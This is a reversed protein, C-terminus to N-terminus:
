KRHSLNSALGESIGDHALPRRPGDESLLLDFIRKIAKTTGAITMLPGAAASHFSSLETASPKPTTKGASGSM